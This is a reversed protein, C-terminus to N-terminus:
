TPMLKPLTLRFLAAAVVFRVIGYGGRLGGPLDNGRREHRLHVIFDGGGVSIHDALMGLCGPRQTHGPGDPGVAGDSNCRTYKESINVRPIRKFCAPIGGVVYKGVRLQLDHTKGRNRGDGSTRRCLSPNAPGPQPVPAENKSPEVEASINYQGRNRAYERQASSRDLLISRVTRFLYDRFLNM